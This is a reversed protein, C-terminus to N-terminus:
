KKDANIMSKVENVMDPIKEEIEITMDLGFSIDKPQIGVIIIEPSIDLKEALTLTELLKMGHTSVVECFDSKKINSSNFSKITGPKDRIDVADIIVVKEFDSFYKILDLGSIDGSLLKIESSFHEKQLEEIVRIGIGDDGRLISGVGIVLTKKM